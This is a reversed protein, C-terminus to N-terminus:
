KVIACGPCIPTPSGKLGAGTRDVPTSAAAFIGAMMLAIVSLRIISKM